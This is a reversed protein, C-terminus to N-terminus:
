WPLVGARIRPLWFRGEYLGYEIAVATVQAHIPSILPMVWKPVDDTSHPDEEKVMTWVDLPAAFRYAARVLQGSKTDFWLSGVVLNWKPQRPRVRLERLKVASKDPLRIDISDGSEYFYYAESGRALPHVFEREDVSARATGTGIWLAEYGPFYPIAAM